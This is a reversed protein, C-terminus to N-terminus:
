LVELFGALGTDLREYLVRLAPALLPAFLFLAILAASIRLTFGVELVNMQPVARALLGIMISVLLLVVMVPAAFTIGARFLEGFFELLYPIVGESFNVSGIPASFFTDSLARLILHHGDVALLGLFFFAEYMRTILPTNIGTSPDVQSSMNFAMEHGILEGGVRVAIVVAQLVFALSLGILAERMCFIAYDLPGVAETLPEGTAGYLAFSVVAVLAVKYGSFAAGNGLLPTALLLASTRVLYLGFAAITGVPIV